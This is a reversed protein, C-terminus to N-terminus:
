TDRILDDIDARTLTERELLAKAVKHHLADHQQLINHARELAWVLLSKVEMEISNKMQPSLNKEDVYNVPGAKQSMGWKYVMSRALDTAQEVDNMAGSTVGDHGCIREEAARGGMAVVLRALMQKRSLSNMDREPIQQVMGLAFGRPMITAKYVPM